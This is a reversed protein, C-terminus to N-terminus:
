RQPHDAAMTCRRTPNLFTKEILPATIEADIRTGSELVDKLGTGREVVILAGIRRRSLDTPATVIESIEHRAETVQKNM